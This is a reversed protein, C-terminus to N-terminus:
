GATCPRRRMPPRACMRSGSVPNKRTSGIYPRGNAAFLFPVRFDRWEGIVYAQHEERIHRAYDKCQHDLMAPIDKHGAKAEIIGVLRTGAFLAYDAFGRDGVSSDTPWEAIALNRGAQPRVGRSYRLRRTDAEWGVKRLQADILYRTEAESVHRKGAAMAARQRRVADPVAVAQAARAVAKDALAQGQGAEQGSVAPSSPAVFAQPTWTEDVYTQFFWGCLSHAIQLLHPTDAEPVPGDEHATQHRANDMLHFTAAIDAPLIDRRQLIDIREAATCDEPLTVHDLACMVRIMSECLLAAEMLCTQPDSLLSREAVIGLKELEPFEGHLFAFNSAM